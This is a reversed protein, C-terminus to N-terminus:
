MSVQYSSTQNDVAVQADYWKDGNNGHRSWVPLGMKGGSKVYVQFLVYANIM